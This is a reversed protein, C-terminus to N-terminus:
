AQERRRRRRWFFALLSGALISLGGALGLGASDVGTAALEPKPITVAFSGLQGIPNADAIPFPSISGVWEDGGYFATAHVTAVVIWDTTSPEGLTTGTTSSACQVATSDLDLPDDAFNLGLYLPAPTYQVVTTWVVGDITQTFTITAPLYDVRYANAFPGIGCAAPLASVDISSVGSIAFMMSGGYSRQTPTAGTEELTTFGAVPFSTEFYTSAAPGTNASTSTVSPDTLPVFGAPLDVDSDITFEVKGLGYQPVCDMYWNDALATSTTQHDSVSACDTTVDAAQAPMAGLTALGLGVISTSAIAASTKLPSRDHSATVM